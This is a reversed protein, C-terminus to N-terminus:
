WPWVAWERGERELSYFEGGSAPNFNKLFCDLRTRFVQLSPSDAAVEPLSCWHDVVIGGLFSCRMEPNFRDLKM